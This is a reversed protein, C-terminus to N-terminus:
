NMRFSKMIGSINDEKSNCTIRGRMYVFWISYVSYSNFSQTLLDYILFSPPKLMMMDASFCFSFVCCIQKNVEAPPM